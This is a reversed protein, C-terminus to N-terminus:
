VSFPLIKVVSHFRIPGVVQFVGRMGGLSHIFIYDLYLYDNM